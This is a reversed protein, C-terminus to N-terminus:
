VSENETKGAIQKEKSLPPMEIRETFRRETGSLRSYITGTKQEDATNKPDDFKDSAPDWHKSVNQLNL